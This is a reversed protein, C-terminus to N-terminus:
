ACVFSSVTTIDARRPQEATDNPKDAMSQSLACTVDQDQHFWFVTGFHLLGM